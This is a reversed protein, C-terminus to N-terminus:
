QKLRLRKLADLLQHHLNLGKLSMSPSQLGLFPTENNLLARAEKLTKAGFLLSLNNELLQPQELRLLAAICRYLKLRTPNIQEFMELWACGHLVAPIDGCRLALL